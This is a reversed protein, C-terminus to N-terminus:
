RTEGAHTTEQGTLIKVNDPLCVCWEPHSLVRRVAEVNKGAMLLVDGHEFYKAM